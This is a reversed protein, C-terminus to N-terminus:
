DIFDIYRSITLYGLKMRSPLIHTGLSSNHVYAYMYRFSNNKLAGEKTSVGINTRIGHFDVYHTDPINYVAACTKVKIVGGSEVTSEEALCVDFQVTAHHFCSNNCSEDSEPLSQIIRSVDIYQTVM